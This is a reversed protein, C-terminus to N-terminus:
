PAFCGMETDSERLGLPAQLIGLIGAKLVWLLSAVQCSLMSMMGFAEQVCEPLLM